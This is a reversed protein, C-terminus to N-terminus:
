WAYRPNHNNFNRFRKTSGRGDDVDGRERRAVRRLLDESEKDAHRAMTTTRGGEVQEERSIGEQGRKVAYSRRLISQEVKELFRDRTEKRQEPSLHNASELVEDIRQLAGAIGIDGLSYDDLIQDLRAATDGQEGKLAHALVEVGSTQQPQTEAFTANRSQYGNESM